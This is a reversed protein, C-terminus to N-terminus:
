LLPCFMSLKHHCHHIGSRHPNRRKPWLTNPWNLAERLACGVGTPTERRGYSWKSFLDSSAFVEGSRHPNRTSFLGIGGRGGAGRLWRGVETPTEGKLIEPHSPDSVYECLVGWKLPPKERTTIGCKFLSYSAFCVGSRHPDM